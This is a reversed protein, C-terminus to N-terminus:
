SHLIVLHTSLGSKSFIWIHNSIKKSIPNALAYRSLTNTLRTSLFFFILNCEIQFFIEVVIKLVLNNGLKPESLKSPQYKQFDLNLRLQKQHEFYFPNHFKLLDLEAKPFDNSIFSDFFDISPNGNKKEIFCSLFPVIIIQPLLFSILYTNLLIM